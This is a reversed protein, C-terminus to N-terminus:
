AARHIHPIEGLVPVEFEQLTRADHISQDLYERGVASGVGLFLAAGVTILLMRPRNPEYPADPLTASYLVRFHESGRKRETDEQLQAASRKAVLDDYQKAVLDREQQLGRLEQEAMPAGELRNEYAHIQSGLLDMQRHLDRMRQQTSQREGLAQRYAPNDALIAQKDALPMNREAAADKKARALEDELEEVDPHKESYKMRAVALDREIQRVRQQGTTAVGGGAGDPSQQELLSITRNITDLRDQEGRLQTSASDLQQRLTQVMQVNANTQEPLRGMNRAKVATIKADIRDLQDRVERERSALFESTEELRVQQTRGTQEVFADALRQAVRRAQDATSDSYALLYTDVPAPSDAGPLPPPVTVQIRNRLGMIDADTPAAPTLHELRAVRSLMAPEVLHQSLARAREERDIPHALDSSLSGGTIAITVISRYKAPLLFTIATGLVLITVAPIIFWRIRRRLIHLYDLPQMRVDRAEDM